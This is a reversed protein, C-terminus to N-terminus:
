VGGFDTARFQAGVATVKQWKVQKMEMISRFDGFSVGKLRDTQDTMVELDSDTFHCKTNKM